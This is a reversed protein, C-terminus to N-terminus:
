KSPYPPGKALVQKLAADHGYIDEFFHVAGQDDVIATGYLILVPIPKPLIVQTNDKGTEMASQVRARDWGPNNRLVWTTLDVPNEVRICGHSFDRRPRSFLEPAPTSHLYVDYENPFMLKVLGLANRPGPRQRVALTGDKLQQLISDSIPGNTVVEGEHTVVEYDKNAIYSRDREVAKVIESRQISFPVNWYPRFVVFKMDKAFVPTQRYARGVIVNMALVVKENQDFGRLRFEPINVVIPPQPFEHPLWRWRELTLKLQSVRERLPVNLEKITAEDLHGNQQLGHRAQFHAVGGALSATYLSEAQATCANAQLDGLLCLRQQLRTTESYQNGAVVPRKPISLPEVGDRQVLQLYLGLAQKTRRYGEFPPETTALTAEVEPSSVLRERVFHSLDYKNHEVDFGFHFYHPNVRGLHLDSVYRMVSVTLALDFHALDAAAPSQRLKEILAPWRTADYDDPDLGEKDAQKLITIIAQAQPTPEASQIWAPAYGAPEYFKQVDVLYDSFDPWRLDPLTPRSALVRLEDQVTSAVPARANDVQDGVTSSLAGLEVGRTEAGTNGMLPFLLILVFLVRSIM